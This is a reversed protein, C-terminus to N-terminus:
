KQKLLYGNETWCIDVEVDGEMKRRVSSVLKQLAHKKGILQKGWIGNILYEPAVAEGRKACLLKLLTNEQRSLKLETENHKLVQRTSNYTTERSLPYVHPKGGETQCRKYAAHLRALLVKPDGDKRVVDSAGADLAEIETENSVTGSYLVIPTADDEARVERILTLGDKKPMDLDLLLLDPKQRQYLIWAKKGDNVWEVKWGKMALLAKTAEACLADDEAFLISIKEETM